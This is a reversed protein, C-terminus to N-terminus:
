VRTEEDPRIFKVGWESLQKHTLETWDLGPIVVGQQGTIYRTAKM